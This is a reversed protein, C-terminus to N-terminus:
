CCKKKNENNDKSKKEEKIQMSNARAEKQDDIQGKNKLVLIILERISNDIGEGTKASTEFYKYNNENAFKEADEKKIERLEEMDLKNGIIVLPIYINQSEMNKKISNIWEKLSDFSENSTLDFTLLVGEANRFYNQTLSRFREQGATDWLKVRITKNDIIEEKTYYDLGVTGLYEEKFTGNTYRTIISTKGVSSDGIILIQCINDYNM